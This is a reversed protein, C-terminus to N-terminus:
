RRTQLFAVLAERDEASPVQYTMSTGPAVAEPDALFADLREATWRGDLQRLADSYATYSENSAIASDFVGYLSPGLTGALRDSDITHCAACAAFAERARVDSAAVAVTILDGEDTWLWVAGDPAEIVDRLRRNIGIREVYAVHKRSEDLAVRYLTQWGLSAVLLDGQWRPFHPSTVEILNSVGISPVWGFVPDVYPVSASARGIPPWDPFNYETGDTVFPWGYNGGEVILYLEDGGRPGHETAWIRGDAAVLLGQPNRHGRSYHTMAGTSVDIRLVKGYDYDDRQAAAIPRNLGDFQHDGSTLLLTDEDLWQMRGGAENGAFAVGRAEGGIPLCPKLTVVVSWDHVVRTLHPDLTAASVATAVCRDDPEWVHHAVFVQWGNGVPRALVGHARFWGRNATAPATEDFADFELPSRLPLPVSTVQRGGPEVALRFLRGRGTMVAVTDGLRVFGGGPHVDDPPVARTYTREEVTYYATFLTGTAPDSTASDSTPPDAEAAEDGAPPACASVLLATTLLCVLALRRLPM